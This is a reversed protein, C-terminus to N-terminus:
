APPMLARRWQGRVTTWTFRKAEHRGQATLKRVLDTSEVLELIRDALSTNSNAAFVLGNDHDRLMSAAPTVAPVLVPLGRRWASILEHPFRGTSNLCVSVDGALSSENPSVGSVISVGSDSLLREAAVSMEVRRHLEPLTTICLETRPYKQKVIAFARCVMGLDDINDTDAHVVLKPQVAGIPQGELAPVIPAIVTSVIHHRRLAMGEWESPTIVIDARNLIPRIFKGFLTLQQDGSNLELLVALRRHQLRAALLIPLLCTFVSTVSTLRVLVTDCRDLRRWIGVFGRVHAVITHLSFLSRRNQLASISINEVSSSDDALAGTLAIWSRDSAYSMAGFQVTLLRLSRAVTAAEAWAIAESDPKISDTHDHQEM